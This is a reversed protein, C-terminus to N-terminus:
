ARATTILAVARLSRGGLAEALDAAFRERVSEGAKAERLAAAAPGVQTLHAPDIDYPLELRTVSVRSFGARSLLFSLAAADSLGFPGPGPPPDPAAIQRRLIPLALAVWENEQWPGWTAISLRAGPELAARLNAFALAPDDFFMVGFRSFCLDFREEFRHTQADALLFRAGPPANARAARLFPESVDVGLASGTLRALERTTEGFGCGVDLAMEGAQPALAEVAATGFPVLPRTMAERLRLWREANGENWLQIQEANAMEALM